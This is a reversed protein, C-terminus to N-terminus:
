DVAAFTVRREAGVKAAVAITVMTTSPVTVTGAYAKGARKLTIVKAAPTGMGVIAQVRATASKPGSVTATLTVKTGARKATASVKFPSTPLSLAVGVKGTTGQPQVDVQIEGASTSAQVVIPWATGEATTLVKGAPDTVTVAAGAPALVSTRSVGGPTTVKLTVGSGVDASAGDIWTGPVPGAAPLSDRVGISSRAAPVLRVAEPPGLGLVKNLASDFYSREDTMSTHITWDAPALQAGGLGGGIVSPHVVPGDNWGSQGLPGPLGCPFVPLPTGARHSYYVGAKPQASPAFQTIQYFPTLQFTPIYSGVAGALKEDFISAGLMSAGGIGLVEYACDSGLNPTGFMTLSRVIPRGDQAPGGMLRSIYWRSILGGMSHGVLDVHVAGTEKRIQAVTAKLTGANVQIAYGTVPDTDMGTVARVTWADRVSKVFTPWTDWAAANSRWGHLLLAPRPAVQLTFRAGGFATLIGIKRWAVPTGPTEWAMGDTRMKITVKKQAGAVFTETRPNKEEKEVEIPRKYETDFLKVETTIDRKWRNEILLELRVQNGDVVKETPPVEAFDGSPTMQFVKVENVVLARKLTTQQYGSRVSLCTAARSDSTYDVTAGTWAYIGTAHAGQSIDGYACSTDRKALDFRTVKEDLELPTAPRVFASNLRAEPEYEAFSAGPAWPVEGDQVVCDMGNASTAAGVVRGSEGPVYQDGGWYADATPEYIAGPGFAAVAGSCTGGQSLYLQDGKCAYAGGRTVYSGSLSYDTAPLAAYMPQPNARPVTDYGLDVLGEVRMTDNVAVSGTAYPTCDGADIDHADIEQNLQVTRKTELIGGTLLPTLTYNGSARPMATTPSLPAQAALSPASPMLAVLLAVALVARKFMSGDHGSSRGRAM